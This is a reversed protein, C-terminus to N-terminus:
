FKAGLDLALHCSSYNVQNAIQGKGNPGARARSICFTLNTLTLGRENRTWEARPKWNKELSRLSRKKKKKKSDAMLRRSNVAVQGVIESYTYPRSRVDNSFLCFANERRWLEHNPGLGAM